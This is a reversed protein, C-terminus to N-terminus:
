KRYVPEYNNDEKSLFDRLPTNFIVKLAENHRNHEAELAALKGAQANVEDFNGWSYVIMGYPNDQESKEYMTYMFELAKDTDIIKACISIQKGERAVAQLIGSTDIESM